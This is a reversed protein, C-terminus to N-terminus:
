PTFKLSSLIINDFDSLYDNSETYIELTKDRAQIVVMSGTQNQAIQGSFRTGTQVNTVNSMKPPIYAVATLKGAEIQGSLDQVVENYPTNVLEVRLAFATDSQLGPVQTPHFYGNIPESSSSEDVYASWTKPYYFSISGYAVPGQYTKYPSKSQQDFKAQLERAQALEAVAVATASKKDSNDKYNQRGNFAWVGFVISGALALVLIVITVILAISKKSSDDQM